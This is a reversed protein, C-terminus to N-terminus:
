DGLFRIVQPLVEGLAQDRRVILMKLSAAEKRLEVERAASNAVLVIRAIQDADHSALALAAVCLEDVAVVGMSPMGIGELFDALWETVDATDSPVDPVILRFSAGLAEVLEPWLSEAENAERLLLVARGAGSRRYRMVQDHAHVEAWSEPRSNASPPKSM